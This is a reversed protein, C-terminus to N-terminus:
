GAEGFPEAVCEALLPVLLAVLLFAIRDWSWVVHRFPDLKTFAFSFLILGAFAAAGLLVGRRRRRVEPAVALLVAGGLLWGLNPLVALALLSMGAAALKAFSFASLAYAPRAVGPGRAALFVLWPGLSLLLCSLAALAGERRRGALLLGVVFLAAAVAGEQKTWCALVLFLTLRVPALPARGLRSVEGAAALLFVALLGEAYGPWVRWYPLLAVAAAAAGKAWPPGETVRAALLAAALALLPWLLGVALDDYRGTVFRSELALLAPWLPPYEPHSFVGAPDIRFMAALEGTRSLARAKLGWIAVYDPAGLPQRAAVVGAQFVGWSAALAVLVTAATRARGARSM